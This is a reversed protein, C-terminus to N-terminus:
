QPAEQPPAEKPNKPSSSTDLTASGGTAPQSAELLRVASEAFRNDVFGDLKPLVKLIGGEKLGWGNYEADTTDSTTWIPRDYKTMAIWSKTLEPTVARLGQRHFFIALLRAADDPDQQIYKLSKVWANAFRQVTDPEKEILESRVIVPAADILGLLNTLDEAGMLVHATGSKMVASTFHRSEFIGDALPTKQDLAKTLSDPPLLKITVDSPRLKFKNLLRILVPHAESGVGIAITKGKLDAVSKVAPQQDSIVLEMQTGWGNLSLIRLPLKLAAMILGGRQSVAAIDTSGSSLSGILAETSTITLGNVVLHEQSFLGREIAVIAPLADWGSSYALRILKWDGAHSWAPTLVISAIVLLRYVSSKAQTVRAEMETVDLNQASRISRTHRGIGNRNQGIVGGV